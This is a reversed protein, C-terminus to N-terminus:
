SWFYLFVSFVSFFYNMIQFWFWNAFIFFQLLKSNRFGSNKHSSINIGKNATQYKKTRLFSAATKVTGLMLPKLVFDDIIDFNFGIKPSKLNNAKAAIITAKALGLFTDTLLFVFDLLPISITIAM